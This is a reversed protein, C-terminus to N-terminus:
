NTVNKAPVATSDFGGNIGIVMRGPLGEWPISKHEVLGTISMGVDLLSQVIEGLGHNWQLTEKAKFRKNEDELKVYTSDDEFAMPAVTEFYPYRVTLDTVVTEDIAWLVPHGERIFLRGGPRLLSAVTQAWQRIDPLWCLAGNGTYVLDFSAPELATLADYTSAEVFSVNEGGAANAVLERGVRLSGPSFDLGVVAKAGYRALSLTDTGIHCQLHIVDLGGIDGLLPIDFKVTRTLFDRDSM